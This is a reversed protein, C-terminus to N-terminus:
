EWLSSLRDSKTQLTSRILRGTLWGEYEEVNDVKVGYITITYMFSEKEQDYSTELVPPIDLVPIYSRKYMREKLRKEEHAQKKLVYGLDKSAGQISFTVIDAAM